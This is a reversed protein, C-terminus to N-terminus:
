KKKNPTPQTKSNVPNTKTNNNSQNNNAQKGAQQQHQLPQKAQNEVKVLTVEFVLTSKPPIMPEAGKVGYGLEHPITLRRKGNLAMGQVGLELGKVVEHKGLTFFFLGKKGDNSDFVKGDTFRGTYTIGVRRGVQAKIGEGLKLEEIVLGNPMTVKSISEEQKLAPQKTSVPTEEKTKKSAQQAPINAASRKSGTKSSEKESESEESDEDDESFDEEEEEESDEDEESLDIQSDEDESDEEESDDDDEFEEEESDEEDSVNKVKDKALLQKSKTQQKAPKQLELEEDSTTIEKVRGEMSDDSSIEEDDDDEADTYEEEDDEDDYWAEDDDEEDDDDHEGNHQPPLFYGTLHIAAPKDGRLLFGIEQGETFVLDLSAQDCLGPTLTCLAFDDHAPTTPTTASTSDEVKVEHKNNNLCEDECASHGQHDDGIPVSIRVYLTTRKAATLPQATGEDTTATASYELCANRICFDRPVIQTYLRGPEVVLGWFETM